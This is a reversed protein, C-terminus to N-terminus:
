ASSIAWKGAMAWRGAVMLRDLDSAFGYNIGAPDRRFREAICSPSPAHHTIVLAHRRCAGQVRIVSSPPLLSPLFHSISLHNSVELDRAM